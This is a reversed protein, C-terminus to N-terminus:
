NFHPLKLSNQKKFFLGYFEEKDAFGLAVAGTLTWSGEASFVIQLTRNIKIKKTQKSHQFTKSTLYVILETWDSLQTQSKAVAHIVAHWAERDM